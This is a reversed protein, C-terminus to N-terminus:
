RRAEGGPAAAAAAALGGEGAAREQGLRAHEMGVLLLAGFAAPAEDFAEEAAHAAYRLRMQAFAFATRRM